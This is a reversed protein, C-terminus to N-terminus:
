TVACSISVPRDDKDLICLQGIYIHMIFMQEYMDMTIYYICLAYIYMCIWVCM